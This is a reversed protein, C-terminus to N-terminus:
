CPPPPTNHERIADKKKSFTSFLFSFTDDIPTAVKGISEPRSIVLESVERERSQCKNEENRAPRKIVRPVDM